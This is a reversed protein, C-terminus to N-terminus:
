SSLHGEEKAHIMDIGDLGSVVHDVDLEHHM